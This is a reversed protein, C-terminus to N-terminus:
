GTLRAIDYVNGIVGSNYTFIIALGRFSRRYWFGM